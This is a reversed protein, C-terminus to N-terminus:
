VVVDHGGSRPCRFCDGIGCEGAAGRSARGSVNAIGRCIGSVTAEGIPTGHEFRREELLKGSPGVVGPVSDSGMTETGNAGKPRM